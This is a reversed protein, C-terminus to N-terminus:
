SLSRLSKEVKPMSSIARLRKSRSFFRASAPSDPFFSASAFIGSSSSRTGRPPTPALPSAAAM